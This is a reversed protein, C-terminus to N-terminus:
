SAPHVEGSYGVIMSACGLGACIALNLLGLLIAFVVALTTNRKILMASSLICCGISIMTAVLLCPTMQAKPIPLGVLLLALASPVFALVSPLL